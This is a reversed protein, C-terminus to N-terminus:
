TSLWRKALRKARTPQPTAREGVSQAPRILARRLSETNPVIFIVDDIIQVFRQNLDFRAAIEAITPWHEPKHPKPPACLFLRADDILILDQERQQISDLEQMIPCEASEGATEGGSWHGDLWYLTPQEDLQSVVDRLVISSDGQHTHVGPLRELEVHYKEYLTSSLEITHIQDFVETAWRTTAGQFTGTEVFTKAGSLQALESVISRPIGSTVSGM